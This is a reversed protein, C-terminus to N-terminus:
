AFWSMMMPEPVADLAVRLLGMAEILAASAHLSELDAREAPAFFTKLADDPASM